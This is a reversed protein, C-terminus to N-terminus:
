IEGTETDSDTGTGARPKIKGWAIMSEYVSGVREHLNDVKRSVGKLDSRLHELDRCLNTIQILVAEPIQMERKSTGPGWFTVATKAVAFIGGVMVISEPYGIM